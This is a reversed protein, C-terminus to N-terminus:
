AAALREAAVLDYNAAMMLLVERCVPIDRQAAEARVRQAEAMLEEPTQNTELLEKELGDILWQDQPNLTPWTLAKM